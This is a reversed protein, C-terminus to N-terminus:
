TISQVYPYLFRQANYLATSNRDLRSKALGGKVHRGEMYTYAKRGVEKFLCGWCLSADLKLIIKSGWDFSM